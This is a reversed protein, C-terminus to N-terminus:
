LQIAKDVFIRSADSYVYHFYLRVEMGPEIPPVCETYLNKLEGGHLRLVVTAMEMCASNLVNNDSRTVSIVYGDIQGSALPPTDCGALALLLVLSLGLRIERAM